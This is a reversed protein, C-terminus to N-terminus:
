EQTSGEKLLPLFVTFTSGVGVESEVEIRGGHMQAIQQSIALGLGVGGEVRSRSKDVRYFRKFIHPLHEPPIGIGTDQVSIMAFGSEKKLSLTIAGGEPTYRVANDLLNLLLEKLRIPDGQMIFTDLWESRHSVENKLTIGKPECLVYADSAVEAVLSKLDVETMALEMRDDSRALFLLRNILVTTRSIERSISELAKQYEERSRAEKLALTAEGQAIALPTRLEHSADATFERQREFAAQLRAFTQNLTAALDGLEDKTRVELRQSLNNEEIERATKTIAQVPRLIRSVLFFGLIGALVLTVVATILIAQRYVSLTQNVNYASQSVVMLDPDKFYFWLTDIDTMGETLLLNKDLIINKGLNEIHIMGDEDAMDLLEARTFNRVSVGSSSTGLGTQSAINTLGTVRYGPGETLLTAKQIGWPDITKRSLSDNLLVDAAEGFFLLLVAVVLLYWLTLRVRINQFFKM